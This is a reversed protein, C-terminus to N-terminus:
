PHVRVSELHLTSFREVRLRVYRATTQPFTATWSEFVEGRRAVQRWSRADDSVEVVLPVALPLAMDQRNVIEVQSFAVSAELDLQFWPSAEANTHFLIRTPYGGCEFKEPHCEAWRSSVTFPKGAALDPLKGRPFVAVISKAAFLSVLIVTVIALQRQRAIHRAEAIDAELTELAREHATQAARLADPVESFDIRDLTSELLRSLALRGAESDALAAFPLAQSAIRVAERRLAALAVRDPPELATASSLRLVADQLERLAVRARRREPSENEIRARLERM